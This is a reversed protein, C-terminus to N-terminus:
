THAFCGQDSNWDWHNPNNPWEWKPVFRSPDLRWVTGDKNIIYEPVGHSAAQLWDQDSGGGNTNGIPQDPIGTDGVFQPHHPMGPINACGYLPETTSSPHTHYLAVLSDGPSPPPPPDSTMSNYCETSNALDTYDVAVYSGDSQKWVAGAHEKRAGTGPASAPNSRNFAAILSDRISQQDLVPDQSPPCPPHAFSVDYSVYDAGAPILDIRRIGDVVLSQTDPFNVGPQGSFSFSVSGIETGTSDYAVMTNGPYTPDYITATVSSVAASFTITITNSATTYAHSTFTGGINEPPAYFPSVNVTDSCVYNAAQTIQCQTPSFSSATNAGTLWPRFLRRVTAKTSQHLRFVGGPITSSVDRTLRYNIRVSKQTEFRYVVAGSTLADLAFLKAEGAVDVVLKERAGVVALVSEDADLKLVVSDGPSAVIEAGALSITAGSSDALPRAAHLVALGDALLCDEQCTPVGLNSSPLAPARRLPPLLQDRCGALGAMGALVTLAAWRVASHNTVRSELVCTRSPTPCAKAGADDGPLRLFM